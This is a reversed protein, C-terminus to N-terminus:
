VSRSEFLLVAGEWVDVDKLLELIAVIVKSYHSSRDRLIQPAHNPEDVTKQIVIPIILTSM